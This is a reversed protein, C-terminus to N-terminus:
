GRDARFSCTGGELREVRMRGACELQLSCGRCNTFQLSLIELSRNTEAAIRQCVSVAIKLRDQEDNINEV